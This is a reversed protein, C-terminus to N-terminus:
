FPLFKKERQLYPRAIYDLSAQFKSYLAPQGQVWWVGAEARCTSPNYPHVVVGLLLFSIRVCAVAHIFGSSKISLSGLWDCFSLYQM